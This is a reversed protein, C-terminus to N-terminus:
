HFFRIKHQTVACYKLTLMNASISFANTLQDKGSANLTIQLSKGVGAICTLNYHLGEGKDAIVANNLLVKLALAVGLAIYDTLQAMSGGVEATLILQIVEELRMANATDAANIGALQGANDPLVTNHVGTNEILKGSIQLGNLGVGTYTNDRNYAVSLRLNELSLTLLQEAHSQNVVAGLLVYDEIQALTAALDNAQRLIHRGLVHHAKVHITYHQGVAGAVRGLVGIANLLYALENAFNGEKANAKAM